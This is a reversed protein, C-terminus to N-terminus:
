RAVGPRWRKITGDAREVVTLFTPSETLFFGTIDAGVDGSWVTRRDRDVLRYIWAEGDESAVAIFTDRGSGAVFMGRVFKQTGSASIRSITKGGLSMIRVTNPSGSLLYKGDSSIALLSIKENHTTLRKPRRNQNQGLFHNYSVEWVEGHLNGVLVRDTAPFHRIETIRDNYEAPEEDRIRRASVTETDGIISYVSLYGANNGVFFHKGDPAFTIASSNRDLKLHGRCERAGVPQSWDWFRVTQDDATSAIETDTGPRFVLSNVKSGHSGMLIAKGGSGVVYVEGNKLGIATRLLSDDDVSLKFATAM